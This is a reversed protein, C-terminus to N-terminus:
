FDHTDVYRIRSRFSFDIYIETGVLNSVFIGSMLGHLLVQEGFIGLDLSRTGGNFLYM